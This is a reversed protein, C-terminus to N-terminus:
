IQGPFYAVKCFLNKTIELKTKGVSTKLVTIGNKQAALERQKM